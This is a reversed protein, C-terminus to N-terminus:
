FYKEESKILWGGGRLLKVNRLNYYKGGAM